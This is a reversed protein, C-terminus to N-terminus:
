PAHCDNNIGDVLPDEVKVATDVEAMAVKVKALDGAEFAAILDRASSAVNRAMAQYQGSFDHLRKDQLKLKSIEDAARDRLFLGDRLSVCVNARVLPPRIEPNRAESAM